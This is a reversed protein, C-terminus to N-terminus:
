GWGFTIRYEFWYKRILGSGSALTQRIAELINHIRRSDHFDARSQILFKQRFKGIGCHHPFLFLSGSDKDPVPDGHVSLWNKRNTPGIM